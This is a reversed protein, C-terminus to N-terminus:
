PSPTETADELEAEATEIADAVATALGPTAAPTAEDGAGMPTARAAVPQRGTSVRPIHRESPNAM